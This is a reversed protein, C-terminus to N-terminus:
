QRNCRKKTVVTIWLALRIVVNLRREDDDYLYSLDEQSTNGHLSCDSIALLGPKDQQM